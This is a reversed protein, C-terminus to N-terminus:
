IRVTRTKKSTNSLVLRNPRRRDEGAGLIPISTLRSLKGGVITIDFVTLKYKAPKFCYGLLGTM